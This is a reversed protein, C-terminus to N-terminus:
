ALVQEVLCFFETILVWRDILIEILYEGSDHRPESVPLDKIIFLYDHCALRQFNNSITSLDYIQDLLFIHFSDYIYVVTFIKVHFKSLFYGLKEQDNGFINAKTFYEQVLPEVLYENLVRKGENILDVHGFDAEVHKFDKLICYFKKAHDARGTLGLKVYWSLGIQGLSQALPSEVRAGESEQGVQKVLKLINVFIRELWDLLVNLVLHEIVCGHGIKRVM